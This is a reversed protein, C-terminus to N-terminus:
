ETQRDGRAAKIQVLLSHKRKDSLTKAEAGLEDSADREVNVRTPSEPASKGTVIGVVQTAVEALDCKLGTRNGRKHM